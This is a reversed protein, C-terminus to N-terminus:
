RKDWDVGVLHIKKNEVKRLLADKYSKMSVIGSAKNGRM